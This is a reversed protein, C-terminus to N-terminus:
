GCGSAECACSSDCRTETVNEAVLVYVEWLNQDPDEVWIKNSVSFCCATETEELKISVGRSSLREYISKVDDNYKLQVGLHGDRAVANPEEHLELRMHPNAIEFRASNARREVPPVNFLASYFSVSRELSRVSLEVCPRYDTVFPAFPALSGDKVSFTEATLSM